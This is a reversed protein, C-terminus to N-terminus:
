IRIASANEESQAMAKALVAIHSATAKEIWSLCLSADSKSLTNLSFEETEKFCLIKAVAKHRLKGGYGLNTLAANLATIQGVNGADDTSTIPEDEWEAPPSKLVM